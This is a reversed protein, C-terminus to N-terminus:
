APRHRQNDIEALHAIDIRRSEVNEDVRTTGRSGRVDLQHQTRQWREYELEEFRRAEAIEAVDDDLRGHRDRQVDGGGLVVELVVRGGPLGGQFGIGILRESGTGRDRHEILETARPAASELDGGPAVVAVLQAPVGVLGHQRLGKGDVVEADFVSLASPEAVDDLGV